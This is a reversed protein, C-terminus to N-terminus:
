SVRAPNPVYIIWTFKQKHLSCYIQLLCCFIAQKFTTFLLLLLTLKLSLNLHERMKWISSISDSSRWTLLLLGHYNPYRVTVGGLHAIEPMDLQGRPLGLCSWTKPVVWGLFVQLFHCPIYPHRLSNFQWGSGSLM